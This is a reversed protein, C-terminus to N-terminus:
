DDFSAYCMRLGITRACRCRTSYRTRQRRINSGRESLTWLGRLPRLATVVPRASDRHPDIERGPEAIPTMGRLKHHAADPWASNGTAAPTRALTTRVTALKSCGANKTDYCVPLPYRASSTVIATVMWRSSSTTVLALSMSAHRRQPGSPFGATRRELRCCAMQPCAISSSIQSQSQTSIPEPLLIRMKTPDLPIM